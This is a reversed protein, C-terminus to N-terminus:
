LPQYIANWRDMKRELSFNNGYFLYDKIKILNERGHVRLYKMHKTRSDKISYRTVGVENYLISSIQSLYIENGILSFTNVENERTCELSGDADFLGLLYSNIFEYPIQEIPISEKEKRNPKMHYNRLDQAMM